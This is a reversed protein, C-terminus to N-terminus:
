YTEPPLPASIHAERATEPSQEKPRTGDPMAELGAAQLHGAQGDLSPGRGTRGASPHTKGLQNWNPVLFCALPINLGPKQLLWLDKM